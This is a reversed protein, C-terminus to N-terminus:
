SQHVYTDEASYMGLPLLSSGIGYREGNEKHFVWEIRRGHGARFWRRV